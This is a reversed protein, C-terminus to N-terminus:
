AVKNFYSLVGEAARVAARSAIAAIPPPYPVLDGSSFAAKVAEAVDARTAGRLCHQAEDALDDWGVLTNGQSASQRMAYLVGARMRRPDTGTIGLAMAVSTDVQVFGVNDLQCLIYPDREVTVVTEIEWEAWAKCALLDSAGLVLLRGIAEARVSETRAKYLADRIAACKHHGLGDVAAPALKDLWSEGLGDWIAVRLSDGVGHARSCVYQLLAYSDAPVDPVAAAFQFQPDGGRTGWEGTLRVREGAQPEWAICGVAKGQDTALIYWAPENPRNSPKAFIVRRITAAITKNRDDM